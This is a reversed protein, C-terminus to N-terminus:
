TFFSQHAQSSWSPPLSYPTYLSRPSTPPSSCLVFDEWCCSFIGLVIIFLNTFFVQSLEIIITQDCRWHSAMAWDLTIRQQTTPQTLTEWSNRFQGWIGWLQLRTSHRMGCFTVAERVSWCVVNFPWSCLYPNLQYWGGYVFLLDSSFLPAYVHVRSQYWVQYKLAFILIVFKQVESIRRIKYDLPLICAKRIQISMDIIKWFRSM